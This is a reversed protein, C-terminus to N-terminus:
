GLPGDTVESLQRGFRLAGYTLSFFVGVCEAYRESVTLLYIIGPIYARLVLTRRRAPPRTSPRAPPRAPPHAPAM